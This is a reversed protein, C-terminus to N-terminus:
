EEYSWTLICSVQDFLEKSCVCIRLKGKSEEFFLKIGKWGDEGGFVVVNFTVAPDLSETAEVYVGEAM